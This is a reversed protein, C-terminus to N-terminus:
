TASGAGCSPAWPAPGHVDVAGSDVVQVGVIARMLTTKGCGSPGLLGTIEGAPVELSVRHLVEDGGRRVPARDVRIAAQAKSCRRRARPPARRLTKLRGRARAASEDFVM